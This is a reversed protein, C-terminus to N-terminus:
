YYLVDVVKSDISVTFNGPSILELHGSFKAAGIRSSGSITGELNTEGTAALIPKDAAISSFTNENMRLSIDGYSGEAYIGLDALKTAGSVM